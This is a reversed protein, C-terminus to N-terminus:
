RRQQQVSAQQGESMTNLKTMDMFKSQMGVKGTIVGTQRAGM